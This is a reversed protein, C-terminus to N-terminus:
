FWRIEEPVKITKRPVLLGEMCAVTYSEKSSALKKNLKTYHSIPLWAFPGWEYAVQKHSNTISLWYNTMTETIPLSVFCLSRTLIAILPKTSLYCLTTINHIYTKALKFNFAVKVLKSILNGDDKPNWTLHTPLPTIITLRVTKICIDILWNHISGARREREPKSIIISLKSANSPLSQINLFTKDSISPPIHFSILTNHLSHSISIKIM